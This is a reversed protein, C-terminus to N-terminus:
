RLDLDQAASNQPTLAQAAAVDMVLGCALMLVIMRIIQM